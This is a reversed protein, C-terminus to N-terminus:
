WRVVQSHLECVPEPFAKSCAGFLFQVLSAVEAKVDGSPRHPCHGTGETFPERSQIGAAGQGSGSRGSAAM